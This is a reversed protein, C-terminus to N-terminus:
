SKLPLEWKKNKCREETVKFEPFDEFLYDKKDKM